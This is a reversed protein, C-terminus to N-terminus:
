MRRPRQLRQQSADSPPRERVKASTLETQALELARARQGLQLELERLSAANAKLEVQASAKFADLETLQTSM